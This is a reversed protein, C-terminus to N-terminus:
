SVLGKGPDLRLAFCSIKIGPMQMWSAIFLYLYEIIASCEPPKAKLKHPLKCPQPQCPRNSTHQRQSQCSLKGRYHSGDDHSASNATCKSCLKTGHLYRISRKDGEHFIQPTFDQYNTTARPAKSEGVLHTEIQLTYIYHNM